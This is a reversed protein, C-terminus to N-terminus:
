PRRHHARWIRACRLSRRTCCQPDGRERESVSLRAHGSTAEGELGAWSEEAIDSVKIAGTACRLPFRM